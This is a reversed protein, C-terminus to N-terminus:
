EEQKWVEEDYNRGQLDNTRPKKTTCHLFLTEKSIVHQLRMGVMLVPGSTMDLLLCHKTRVLTILVKFMIMWTTDRNSLFLNLEWVLMEPFLKHRLDSGGCVLSM